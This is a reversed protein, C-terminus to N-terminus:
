KKNVKKNTDTKPQKDQKKSTDKSVEVTVPIVKMGNDIYVTAKYSEVNM